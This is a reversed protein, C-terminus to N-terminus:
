QQVDGRYVESGETNILVIVSDGGLEQPEGRMELLGALTAGGCPGVDIGLKGLEELAEVAQRDTVSCALDVGAFLDPWALPSVTGCNLGPMITDTTTISQPSGNLLSTLLCPANTPEVSLLSTPTASPHSRYHLTAAHALSGVGVPVVVLSPSPLKLSALQTDIEAFLTTYGSVILAPITEYGTWSTDQILLHTSPSCAAHSAAQRVAEDYSDNITTVTAGESAISAISSRSVSAPVFIKAKMNLVKAMHAVARGHNGDTAAVLTMELDFEMKVLDELTTIRPNLDVKECIALFVAWSAGLIKFAPLGLRMSEDKVFVHRVGLRTALTPVDVLPTPAYGPFAQHFALPTPTTPLTSDANPSAKVWLKASPNTYHRRQTPAALSQTM